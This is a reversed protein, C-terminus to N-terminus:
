VFDPIADLIDRKKDITKRNRHYNIESTRIDAHGMQDRVTRNDVNADLLITDYTARIKHPSKKRIGLKRCIAYERKRIHYTTLRECNEMFVYDNEESNFHLNRILWNYSSPIVIERMGARTKPYEQIEYVTNGNDEQYRTETRRIKITNDDPNLDEHRLAVLEGIRVGSVFMLLIGANKIDCNNKLYDMMDMTEDENFVLEDDEKYPRYFEKDSIDLDAFMLEPSWYIYGKRKARKLIGRMITKIAGFSRSTLHYKPIQEELFEIIELQTINRIRKEGFEQFHRKFTQRMRTHSSKTIKNLDRRYDNWENFLEKLTPNEILNSQYDCIVKEIGEKTKRKKLIRGREKDPLYVYWSGNKGQWPQYPHKALLEKKREMEIISQIDPLNIIGKELCYKLDETSIM